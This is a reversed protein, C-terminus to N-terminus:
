DAETNESGSQSSGEATRCRMVWIDYRSHELANLAPSSAVMWGAFVPEAAGKDRITLFAYADAAPDGAPYRCEGLEVSVRGMEAVGGNALDIDEVQGTLKDLGRLIAGNGVSVAEQAAAAGALGCLLLAAARSRM